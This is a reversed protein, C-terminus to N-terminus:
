RTLHRFECVKKNCEDYQNWEAIRSFIKKREIPSVNVDEKQSDMCFLDVIPEKYSGSMPLTYTIGDMQFINWSIIYAAKALSKSSIKSKKGIKSCFEEYYDAFTFLVAERALLLNDGQWEFAYTNKLACYAWFLWDKTNAVNESVIRLKRDLLGIRMYIDDIPLGTTTDYRSVLYPAEGCTMEMRTDLVYDKWTKGEPFTIKNRNPSWSCSSKDETNFVNTRGFWEEDVLNNQANCIWSPTFVEGKDRTRQEQEEKSKTARPKVVQSYEGTINKVQIEEFFGFGNGLNSYNDTAWFIHHHSEKGEDDIYKEQSHDWLLRELIDDGIKLIDDEIIDINSTSHM